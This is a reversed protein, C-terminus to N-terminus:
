PEGGSKTFASSGISQSRTIMEVPLLRLRMFLFKAPGAESFLTSFRLYVKEMPQVFFTLCLFSRECKQDLFM